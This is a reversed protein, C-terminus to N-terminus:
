RGALLLNKVAAADIRDSIVAAVAPLMEIQGEIHPYFACFQAHPAAPAAKVREVSHRIDLWNAGTDDALRRYSVDEGASGYRETAKAVAAAPMVDMVAHLADADSCLAVQTDLESEAPLMDSLVGGDETTPKDISVVGGRLASIESLERMARLVSKRSLSDRARLAAEEPSFGKAIHRKQETQMLLDLVDASSYLTKSRTTADAAQELTHMARAVQKWERPIQGGGSSFDLAHLHQRLQTAVWQAVTTGRSEDYGACCELAILIGDGILDDTEQAAWNSGLRRKAFETAM